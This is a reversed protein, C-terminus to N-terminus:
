NASTVLIGFARVNCEKNVKCRINNITNDLEFPDRCGGSKCLNVSAKSIQAFM